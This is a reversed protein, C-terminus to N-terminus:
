KSWFKNLQYNVGIAYLTKNIVSPHFSANMRDHLFNQIDLKGKVNYLSITGGFGSDLNTYSFRWRNQNYYFSNPDKYSIYNLGIHNSLEYAYRTYGTFKHFTLEMLHPIYTSSNIKKGYHYAINVGGTYYRDFSDGIRFDSAIPGGDNYYSIQVTRGLNLNAFGLQQPEKLEDNGIIYNTGVGVSWHFMNQLPNGSFDSFYYLPAVVRQMDELSRMKTGLNLTLSSIFDLYLPKKKYKLPSGLGHNYVQVELHAAPYLYVNSKQHLLSIPKAAGGAITIRYNRFVFLEFNAKVAFGYQFSKPGTNDMVADSQASIFTTFFLLLILLQRRM